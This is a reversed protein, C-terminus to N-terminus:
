KKQTLLIRQALAAPIKTSAMALSDGLNIQFPKWPQFWLKNAFLWTMWRELVRLVMSGVWAHGTSSYGLEYNCGADGGHKDSSWEPSFPAPEWIPCHTGDVTMFYILGDDNDELTGIKWYLLFCKNSLLLHSGLLLTAKSRVVCWVLFCSLSGRPIIDIGSGLRRQLWRSTKQSCVKLGM